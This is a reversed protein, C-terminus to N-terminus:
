RIRNEYDAILDLRAAGVDSLHCDGIRHLRADRFERWYAPIALAAPGFRSVSRISPLSSGDQLDIM